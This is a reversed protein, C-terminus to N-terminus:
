ENQYPIAGFEHWHSIFMCSKSIKKRGNRNVHVFSYCPAGIMLASCFSFRVKILTRCTSASHFLPKKTHELQLSGLQIRFMRLFYCSFETIRAETSIIYWYSFPSFDVNSLSILFFFLM